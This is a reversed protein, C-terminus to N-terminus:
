RPLSASTTSSRARSMTVGIDLTIETPSGPRGIASIPSARSRNAPRALGVTEWGRNRSNTASPTDLPRATAQSACRAPIGAPCTSVIPSASLSM